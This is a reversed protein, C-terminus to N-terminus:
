ETRAGACYGPAELSLRGGASLNRLRMRMWGLERCQAAHADEHVRVPMTDEAPIRAVDVVQVPGGVTCSTYGLAQGQERASRSILVAALTLVLLGLTAARAVRGRRTM